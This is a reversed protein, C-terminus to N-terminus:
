SYGERRADRGERIIRNFEDVDFPESATVVKEPDFIKSNPDNLFADVDFPERWSRTGNIEEVLVTGWRDNDDIHGCGRVEVYQTAFRLMDDALSEDFRLRVHRDRHRYLQARKSHWNVERLWGHLLAQETKPSPIVVRGRRKVEVRRHNSGDGLWLRIDRPLAFATEYLRDTVAEPLSPNESGNWELLAGIAQRGYGGLHTQKEPPMLELEAVISGPNIAVLRLASQDMVWKPRRGRQPPRGGLHEVMLRLAEQVGKLTKMFPDLPVGAELGLGEFTVNLKNTTM